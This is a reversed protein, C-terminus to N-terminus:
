DLQLSKQLYKFLREKKTTTKDVTTAENQALRILQRLHQRDLEPHDTILNQAAEDGSAILEDRIKEIRQFRQRFFRNSDETQQLAQEIEQHNEARLLKGVYLLQRRRAENHKLTRALQVAEALQDSLPLRSLQGAPLGLLTNAQDQFAIMERKRASKSPAPEDTQNVQATPHEFPKDPM